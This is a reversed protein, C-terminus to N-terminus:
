TQGKDFISDLHKISRSADDVKKNFIVAVLQYKWYEEATSKKIYIPHPYVNVCIYNNEKNRLIM